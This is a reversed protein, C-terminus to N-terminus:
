CGSRTIKEGDKLENARARAHWYSEELMQLKKKAEKILKKICKFTNSAWEILKPAYMALQIPAELSVSKNWAKELVKWCEGKSLWLAEFKFPRDFRGRLKLDEYNPYMDLWREEVMFRDLQKKMITCPNNGHHWTFMSGKYGLDRLGCEDIAIKHKNSSELWVYIGLARWKTRGNQETVNTAVHHNSYSVVEVKIDHWWFGLGRSNDKNSVNVGYKFGCRRQINELVHSHIMM